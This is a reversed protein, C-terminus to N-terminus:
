AKHNVLEGGSKQRERERKKKKPKCFRLEGVLSQVWTGATFACRGLSQVALSNGPGRDRWQFIGEESLLALLLIVGEAFGKACGRASSLWVGWVSGGTASM